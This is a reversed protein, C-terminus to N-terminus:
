KYRSPPETFRHSGAPDSVSSPASDGLNSQSPTRGQVYSSRLDRLSRGDSEAMRETALKSNSYRGIMRRRGDVSRRQNFSKSSTSGWNDDSLIKSSHINPGDDGALAKIFKM